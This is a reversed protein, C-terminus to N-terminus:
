PKWNVNDWDDLPKEEKENVRVCCHPSYSTSHDTIGCQGARVGYVFEKETESPATREVLDVKKNKTIRQPNRSNTERDRARHGEQLDRQNNGQKKCIAATQRVPGKNENKMTSTTKAKPEKHWQQM